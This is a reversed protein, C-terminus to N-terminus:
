ATTDDTTYDGAPAVEAPAQPNNNTPSAVHLERQRTVRVGAAAATEPRQSLHSPRPLDLWWM